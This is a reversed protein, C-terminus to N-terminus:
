KLTIQSLYFQLVKRGKVESIASWVLPMLGQILIFISLSLSFQASTAPLDAEMEQVAASRRQYFKLDLRPPLSM